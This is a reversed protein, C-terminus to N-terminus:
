FPNLKISGLFQPTRTKHFVYLLNIQEGQMNKELYERISQVHCLGCDNSKFQLRGFYM